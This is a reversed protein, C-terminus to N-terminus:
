RGGNASRVQNYYGRSQAAISQAAPTNPDLVRWQEYLEHGLGGPVGSRAAIEDYRQDGLFQRAVTGPEKAFIMEPSNVQIEAPIGAKTTVTANM